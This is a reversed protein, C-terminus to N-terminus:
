AELPIMNGKQQYEVMQAPSEFGHKKYNDLVLKSYGKTDGGKGAGDNAVKERENLEALTEKKVIDKYKSPNINKFALLVADKYTDALELKLYKDAKESVDSKIDEFELKTMNLKERLADLMDSKGSSKLRKAVAAEIRADFDEDTLQRVPIKVDKFKKPFEAKLRDLLKPDEEALEALKDEDDVVKEMMRHLIDKTKTHQSLAVTEEVAEEAEETVEEESETVESEDKPKPVILDGVVEVEEESKTPDDM